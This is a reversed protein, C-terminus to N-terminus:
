AAGEAGTGPLGAGPAGEASPVGEQRPKKGAQAEEGGAAERRRRRGEAARKGHHSAVFVTTVALLDEALEQADSVARGSPRHVVLRCAKRELLWELLDAALRALRDRHMVVVERVLGQDVRDLLARLGPRKFNVGSAVDRFVRHQPYAQQLEAVQRDLDDRQKASSVRAYIVGEGQVRSGNGEGEGRNEGGAGVVRAIDGVHYLRKGGPHRLVRVDPREAWRRLTSASVGFAECFHKGGRYM